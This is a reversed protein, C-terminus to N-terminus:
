FTILSYLKHICPLALVEEGAVFTEMCVECKARSELMPPTVPFRPLSKLAEISTM